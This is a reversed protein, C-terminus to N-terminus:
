LPICSGQEWRILAEYSLQYLLAVTVSIGNYGQNKKKKLSLFAIARIAQASRLDIRIWENVENQKRASVM